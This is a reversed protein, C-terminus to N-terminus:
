AHDLLDVASVLQGVMRHLSVCLLHKFDVERRGESSDLHNWLQLFLETHSERRGAVEVCWTLNGYGECYIITCLYVEYKVAQVIGFIELM